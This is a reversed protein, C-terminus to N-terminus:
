GNADLQLDGGRCSLFFTFYSSSVKHASRDALTDAVGALALIFVYLHGDEVLYYPFQAPRHLHIVLLHIGPPIAAFGPVTIV